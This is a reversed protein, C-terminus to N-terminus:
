VMAATAYCTSGVCTGSLRCSGVPASVVARNLDSRVQIIDELDAESRKAAAERVSGVITATVEADWGYRSKLRNELTRSEMTILRCHKSRKRLPLSRTSNLLALRERLHHPRARGCTRRGQVASRSSRLVAYARSWIADYPSASPQSPKVQALESPRLCGQMRDRALGSAGTPSCLVAFCCLTLVVSRSTADTDM